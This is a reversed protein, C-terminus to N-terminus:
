VMVAPDVVTQVQLVILALKALVEAEAELEVVKHTAQIEVEIEKLHHYQHLIVQVVQHQIVQVQVIPVVAVQVAQNATKHEQATWIEELAAAVVQQHSLQFHQHIEKAEEKLQVRVVPAEVVM